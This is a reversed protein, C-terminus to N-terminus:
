FSRVCNVINGAYIEAKGGMSSGGGYWYWAISWVCGNYGYETIRRFYYRVASEWSDFSMGLAGFPNHSGCCVRGGSSEATCTVPCIRCDNGTQESLEVMLPALDILGQVHGARTMYATLRATLDARRTDIVRQAERTVVDSQAWEIAPRRPESQANGRALHVCLIALTILAAALVISALRPGNDRERMKRQM